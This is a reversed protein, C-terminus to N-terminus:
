VHSILEEEILHLSCCVRRSCMVTIHDTLLFLALVPRSSHLSHSLITKIASTIIHLESWENGNLVSEKDKISLETVNLVKCMNQPVQDVVVVHSMSPFVYIADSM